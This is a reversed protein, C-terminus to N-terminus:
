FLRRYTLVADPDVLTRLELGDGTVRGWVHPAAPCLAAPGCQTEMEIRGGQVAYTYRETYSQTTDRMEPAAFDIRQTLQRRATGDENLELRDELLEFRAYPTELVVAPNVDLAYLAAVDADTASDCASAASCLLALAAFRRIM